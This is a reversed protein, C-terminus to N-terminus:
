KSYDMYSIILIKLCRRTKLNTGKLMVLDWVEYKPVEKKGRNWYRGM